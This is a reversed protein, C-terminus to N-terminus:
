ANAGAFPAPEVEIEDMKAVYARYRRRAEGHRGAGALTAILRLHATEDYSDRELIRLDYRIAADHQGAWAADAALAHAVEIYTARAEERLPVAWEEYLDEEMFDGTYSSEAAELMRTAELRGGDRRLRLGARAEHLFAEVDVPLAGPDIAIGDRDARIFTDQGHHGGPDLISRVTALAVSLRNGLLEPDGEPWLAEMFVDRPAPQGRRAVLIKLLDRAKKSRWESSPVIAGGRAVAFGGLTRVEVPPGIGSPLSHLLGAARAAGELRVGLARLGAAASRVEAAATPGVSLRAVAYSTKAVALTNGVDAWIREAERLHEVSAVPHSSSMVQLEIAEALGGREDRDRAARAAEAAREAAAEHDGGALAAWGTALVASVYGFGTGQALAEEGLEAAREPDDAAVLRCLGALAPVLGQTDVPDSAIRAAEEYCARAQALDGRERHIDGLATLPYCIRQSGSREYVAKSSELDFVAEELRGLALRAEGRNSLALALFAPFGALDALSIAIDLEALAEPFSGRETFHSARNTRIRIVQLIDNTALAAELARANHEESARREGAEWAVLALVTHAAAQARVAEAAIALQLAQRGLERCLERNRLMWHATATWALLMAEDAPDSGDLRGRAFAELAQGPQGRLYEILGARWALGPPVTEADGAARAFRARAADWDGRIQLAEGALEEIRPDRDSPPLAEVARLLAGVGGAHLIAEGRDRLLRVIGQRDSAAGLSRLAGELDGSAELWAAARRHIAKTQGDTMPLHELAFTRLLAHLTLWGDRRREVFLGRAALEAVSSAADPVGVAECLAPTFRGLRAATRVLETLPGGQRGFFEEALYSFLPGGPGRFADLAATRAEPPLPALADVALRLAAPWGGTLEHLAVALESTCGEMSAGLFDEVEASSFALLEPGIRVVEGQGDLRAVPFPPRARSALVLHLGAPAQRCLAGVFQAGESEPRIAHLDDLVLVVDSRLQRRLMEAVDGAMAVAHGGGGSAAAGRALPPVPDAPMGPMSVQLASTVGSVITTLDADRADIGYWAAGVSAAWARLVTSKGFGAGGLVVTLRRHLSQHLRDTVAPRPLFWSPEV